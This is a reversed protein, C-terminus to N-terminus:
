LPAAKLRTVSFLANWLALAVTVFHETCAEGSTIELNNEFHKQLMKATITKQDSALRDMLIKKIAGVQFVRQM